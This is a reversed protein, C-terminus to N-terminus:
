NPQWTEVRFSNAHYRSVSKGDTLPFETSDANVLYLRGTRHDLDMMRAGFQTRVTAAVRLKDAGVREIVTMNGEYASAVIRGRQDDIVLADLGKGITVRSTVKGTAPDLLFASPKDGTCAGLLRGEPLWKMKSVNCGVDWRAQEKLTSSDLKLVMGDMRLPAYINGKGDVAPDDMKRFPFRTTALLRGSAADITFWTSEAPRSGTIVHLRGTAPDLSGSNLGGDSALKTRAIVKLTRLDFSLLSGDNMATYGRNYQPLLIPGNAGASNAVTAVARGRDVDFVTLGDKLRAMFLRPSGPQFKVYDWDTDTSPLTVSRTMVYPPEPAEQAVAGGVLAVSLAALVAKM